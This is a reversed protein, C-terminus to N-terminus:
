KIERNRTCLVRETQAIREQIQDERIETLVCEGVARASASRPERDIVAMEGLLDGPGLFNLVLHQGGHQTYVEVRGSDIVFAATPPDGESFIQEGAAFQHKSGAM